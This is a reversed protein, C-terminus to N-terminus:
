GVMLEVLGEITYVSATQINKFGLEKATNATIPGIAKVPLKLASALYPTDKLLEVFNQVTASSAFSLVDVKGPEFLAKLEEESYDPQNIQYVPVVEVQAGRQELLTIIEQRAQNARPILIKKGAIEAESFSLALADTTFEQPQKAVSLGRAHLAQATVPGVAGLEARHLDRIDQGQQQVRQFFRKVGNVSTFLIWDYDKINAIAQDVPEWSVPDSLEITAFEVPEAGLELLRESLVSAQERTRSVLICKGFLPRREFWGLEERLKVVEGVVIVSPPNIKNKEIVQAINILHCKFTKQTGYTGWLIVAAPTEPDKGAKTLEGVITAINKVGMLIVLTGMKALSPWHLDEPLAADGGGHGTIVAFSSGFDRHTLPIGAYAPVAAASSVGPVIEFPIQHKALAQAEEGGRGFIFPDGGKLRVIVSHQKSAEIMKQQIEQQGVRDGYGVKGVYYCQAQPCLKLLQPHVLHDYFVIQARKLLERGRVTILGPDGPGAGVLYVRGKNPTSSM